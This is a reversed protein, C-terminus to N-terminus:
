FTSGTVMGLATLQALIQPEYHRGLSVIRVGYQPHQVRLMAGSECAWTFVLGQLVVRGTLPVHEEHDSLSANIV